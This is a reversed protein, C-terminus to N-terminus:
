NGLRFIIPLVMKVKVPKGRQKGPIWAPSNKIVKLAEEDCGAGIGKIVKVETLAGTKDIIFEIFVKGEVGMKRAQTPYKMKKRVYKYFSSLGGDYEPMKEAITVFDDVPEELPLEVAEETPFEIEETQDLWKLLQDDVEVDEPVEQPIVNKPKPREPPKIETIPIIIVEAPDVILEPSIFGYDGYSKWEFASTVFALALVLGINFYLGYKSGLQAKKSKKMEM